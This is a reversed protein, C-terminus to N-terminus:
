YSIWPYNVHYFNYDNFPATGTPAAASYTSFCFYNSHGPPVISVSITVGMPKPLLGQYVIMNQLNSSGFTNAISYNIQMNASDSILIAGGFYNHLETQIAGLSSGSNNKIIALQILLRFDSDSLTIAGNTGYGKRSAGVYKGIIDLQPGVASKVNYANQVYLPLQNLIAIQAILQILANANPQGVYELILLNAYYAQLDANIM